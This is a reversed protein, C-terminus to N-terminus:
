KGDGQVGRSMALIIDIIDGMRDADLGTRLSEDRWHRKVDDERGHDRIPARSTQKCAGIARAIDMRKAILGIIRLDVSDLEARLSDIQGM